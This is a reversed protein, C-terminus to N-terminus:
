QLSVFGNWPSVDWVLPPDEQLGLGVCVCFFHVVAAALVLFICDGLIKYKLDSVQVVTFLPM